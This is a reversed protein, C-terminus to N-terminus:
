SFFHFFYSIKKKKVVNEIEWLFNKLLPQNISARFTGM